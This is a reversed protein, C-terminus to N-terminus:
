HRPFDTASCLLVDPSLEELNDMAKLPNSYQLGQYGRTRFFSNFRNKLFREEAVLMAIV